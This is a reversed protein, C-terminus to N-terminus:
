TKPCLCFYHPSPQSASIRNRTQKSLNFFFIRTCCVPFFTRCFHCHNFVDLAEWPYIRHPPFRPTPACASSRRPQEPFPCRNLPPAPRTKAGILLLAHLLKIAEAGRGGGVGVTHQGPGQLPGAGEDVAQGGGGCVSIFIITIITTILSSKFLFFIIFDLIFHSAYVRYFM